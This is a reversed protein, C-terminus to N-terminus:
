PKNGSNSLEGREAAGEATRAETASEPAILRELCKCQRDKMRVMRLLANWLELTAPVSVFAWGLSGLTVTTLRAIVLHVLILFAWAEVAPETMELMAHILCLFLTIIVCAVEVLSQHAQWWPRVSEDMALLTAVITPLFLLPITVFLLPKEVTTKPVAEM